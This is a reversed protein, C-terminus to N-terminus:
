GGFDINKNELEKFGDETKVYQMFVNNAFELFRGCDCAPTCPGDKWQSNEHLQLEAGFDWFMESDPGGPEGVPMNEPVGARSWWNEKENFYFIRGGQMGDVEAM